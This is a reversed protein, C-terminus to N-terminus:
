ILKNYTFLRKIFEPQYNNSGRDDIAIKNETHDRERHYGQLLYLILAVEM